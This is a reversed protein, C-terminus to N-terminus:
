PRRGKPLYVGGSVIIPQRGDPGGRSSYLVRESQAAEALAKDPSLAERRLIRSPGAPIASTWQYFPGTGGDGVQLDSAPAASAVANTAIFIAAVVWLLNRPLSM